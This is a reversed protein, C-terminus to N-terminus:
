VSVEFEIAEFEVPYGTYYERLTDEAVSKGLTAKLKGILEIFEAINVVNPVLEKPGDSKESKKQKPKLLPEDGRKVDAYLTVFEDFDMNGSKDVDNKKFVKKLVKGKPVPEGAEECLWQWLGVFQDCNMQNAPSENEYKIYAQDFDHRIRRMDHPTLVGMVPPAPKSLEDFIAQVATIEDDTVACNFKQGAQERTCLPFSNTPNVRLEREM